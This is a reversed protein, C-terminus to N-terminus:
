PNGHDIWPLWELHSCFPSAPLGERNYLNSGQPSAKCAYRVAVPKPVAESTVIVEAGEIRAKAPHWTGDNGALEFWKLETDPTEEPPDFGPKDGIMLGSGLNHFRVRAAGGEVQHDRYLPGASFLNRQGYSKALALQALRKGVAIKDPPHIGEGRVDITVAMGTNPISLSRRQEERMRIWGTASPFSPLQVFYVPLQEDDWRTRWGEVLAKMKDRYHRPDEGKGANSEAQYWLFGRLPLGTLPAMRANFIAGPNGEPNRIIVGGDIGALAELDNADALHRIRKLLRSTFADRPIFPEIPKGGWSVDIIGIPVGDLKEALERAFVSAVASFNVVNGPTMPMWEGPQSLDPAEARRNELIPDDIRRMRIRSFRASEAWERSEPLGKLMGSVRMQMNSQGAALWVDGIVVNEQSAILKGNEFLSLDRGTANAAQAPITAKWGGEPNATAPVEIGGFRVKLSATPDAGEGWVAIETERQLVLHDGFIRAFRPAALSDFIGTFFLVLVLSITTRLKM